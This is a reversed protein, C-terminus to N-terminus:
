FSLHFRRGFGERGPPTIILSRNTDRRRLWGLDLCRNLIAAGVAGALHPRRESWDLCARCFVRKSRRLDALDLGWATLNAEGEPSIRITKDLPDPGTLAEALQVALRGALHDYCSRAERMQPDAPGTRRPKGNPAAQAGAVHMAELMQAIDASALRHYHHRGQREMHIMGAALLKSLHGSATQPTVGAREALERATLARGDLLSILMNARGPDGVLAGIEAIITTSIIM